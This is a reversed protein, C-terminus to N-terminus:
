FKSIGLVLLVFGLRWQYYSDDDMQVVSDDAGRMVCRGSRMASNSTWCCLIPM